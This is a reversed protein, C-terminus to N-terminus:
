RRPKLMVVLPVPVFVPVVFVVVGPKPVLPKEPPEVKTGLVALPRTGNAM